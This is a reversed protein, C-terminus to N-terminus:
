TVMTSGGFSWQLVMTTGDRFSMFSKLLSQCLSAGSEYLIELVMILINVYLQFQVFLVCLDYLWYADREWNYHDSLAQPYVM